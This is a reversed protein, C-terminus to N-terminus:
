SVPPTQTASIEMDAATSESPKHIDNTIDDNGGGTEKSVTTFYSQNAADYTTDHTRQELSVNRQEAVDNGMDASGYGRKEEPDGSETAKDIDADLVSRLLYLSLKQPEDTSEIQPEDRTDDKQKDGEEVSDIEKSQEEETRRNMEESEVMKPKSGDQETNSTSMKRQSETRSLSDSSSTRLSVSSDTGMSPLESEKIYGSSIYFKGPSLQPSNTSREEEDNQRNELTSIPITTGERNKVSTSDKDNDSDSQNGAEKVTSRGDDASSHVTKFGDNYHVDTTTEDTENDTIQQTESTKEDLTRYETHEPDSSANSIRNDEVLTGSFTTKEEQPQEPETNREVISESSSAISQEAEAFEGTIIAQGELNKVNTNVAASDENLVESSNYITKESLENTYDLKTDDSESEDNLAMTVQDAVSENSGTIKKDILPSDVDIVEKDNDKDMEVDDLNETNETQKTRDIKKNDDSTKQGDNPEIRDIEEGNLQGDRATESSSVLQEFEPKLKADDSTEDYSSTKIINSFQNGKDGENLTEDQIYGEAEELNVDKLEPNDAVRETPEQKSDKSALSEDKIELNEGDLPVVETRMLMSEEESEQIRFRELSSSPSKLSQTIKEEDGLERELKNDGKGYQNLDDPSSVGIENDMEATPETFGLSGVQIESKIKDELRPENTDSPKILIDEDAKEVTIAKELNLNDKETIFEINQPQGESTHSKAKGNILGEKMEGADLIGKFDHMGIAEEEDNIKRDYDLNMEVVLEPSSAGKEERIGSRGFKDEVSKSNDAIYIEQDVETLKQEEVSGETVNDNNQIDLNEVSGNLDEVDFDNSKKLDAFNVNNLENASSENDHDNTTYYKSTDEPTSKRFTPQDRDSDEVPESNDRKESDDSKKFIENSSEGIEFGGTRGEVEDRVLKSETWLSQEELQQESKQDKMPERMEAVPRSANGNDYDEEDTEIAGSGHSGIVSQSNRKDDDEGLKTNEKKREKKKEEDRMQDKGRITHRDAAGNHNDVTPSSVDKTQRTGNEIHYLKMYEENTLLPRNGLRSKPRTTGEPGQLTFTEVDSTSQGTSSVDEDTISEDKVTTATGYDGKGDAEAAAEGLVREKNRVSSRYDSKEMQIGSVPASETGENLFTIKRKGTTPKEPPRPKRIRDHDDSVTALEKDDVLSRDAKPTGASKKRRVKKTKGTNQSRDDKAYISEEHTVPETNKCEADRPRENVDRKRLNQHKAEQKDRDQEKTQDSTCTKINISSKGTKKKTGDNRFESKDQAETKKEPSSERKPSHRRSSQHKSPDVSGFPRKRPGDLYRLYKECEEENHFGRLLEKLVLNKYQSQKYEKEKTVDYVQAISLLYSANQKCTKTQLLKKNDQMSIPLKRQRKRVTLHAPDSSRRSQATSARCETHRGSGRYSTAEESKTASKCRFRSLMHEMKPKRVFRPSSSDKCALHRDPNTRPYIESSHRDPNPTKARFQVRDTQGRLHSASRPVTRNNLLVMKAPSNQIDYVEAVPSEPPWDYRKSFQEKQFREKIDRESATLAVPTYTQNFGPTNFLPGPNLSVISM